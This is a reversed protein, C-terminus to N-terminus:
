DITKSIKFIKKSESTQNKSLHEDYMKQWVESLHILDNETFEEINNKSTDLLFLENTDVIRLFLKYPITELSNYIM